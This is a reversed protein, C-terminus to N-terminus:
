RDQDSLAARLFFEGFFQGLLVRGTSDILSNRVKEDSVQDGVFRGRGLSIAISEKTDPFYAVAVAPNVDGKDNTIVVLRQGDKLNSSNMHFRFLDNNYRQLADFEHKEKLSDFLKPHQLRDPDVFEFDLPIISTPSTPQPLSRRQQEALSM